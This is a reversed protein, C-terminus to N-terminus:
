TELQQLIDDVAYPSLLTQVEDNNCRHAVKKFFLCFQFFFLFIIVWMTVRLLLHHCPPQFLIGPTNRGSNQVGSGGMFSWGLALHLGYNMWEDETLRRKPLGHNRNNFLLTGEFSGPEADFTGSLQFRDLQILNCHRNLAVIQLHQFSSCNHFKWPTASGGFNGGLASRYSMWSYMFSGLHVDPIM